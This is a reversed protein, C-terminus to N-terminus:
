ERDAGDFLAFFDGFVFARTDAGRFGSPKLPAAIAIKVLDIRADGDIACRAAVQGTVGIMGAVRIGFREGIAAAHEDARHAIDLRILFDGVIVAVIIKFVDDPARAALAGTAPPSPGALLPLRAGQILAPRSAEGALASLAPYGLPPRFLATDALSRADASCDV